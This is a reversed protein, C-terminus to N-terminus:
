TSSPSAVPVGGNRVAISWSVDSQAPPHPVIQEVIARPDGAGGALALAAQGLEPTLAGSFPILVHVEGAPIAESFEFTAIDSAGDRGQWYHAAAWCQDGFRAEARGVAGAPVRLALRTTPEDFVFQADLTGVYRGRTFDLDIDASHRAALSSM